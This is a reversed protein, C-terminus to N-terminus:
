GMGFMIVQLLPVILTKLQFTGVSTFFQPYFMSATVATLVIVTYSLGKVNQFGRIGMALSIFFIIFFPGTKEIKGMLVMVIATILLLAALGLLIKCIDIKKL